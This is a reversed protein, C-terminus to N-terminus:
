ERALNAAVALRLPRRQILMGRTARPLSCTSWALPTAMQLLASAAFDARGKLSKQHFVAFFYQALFTKQAIHTDEKDEIALM